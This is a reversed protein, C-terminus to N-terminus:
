AAARRRYRCRYAAVAPKRDNDVVAVEVHKVDLNAVLPLILMVMVPMAIIIKPIIPNRRMLTVEKRLLAALIRIKM